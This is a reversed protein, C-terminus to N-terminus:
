VVTGYNYYWFEVCKTGNMFPSEYGAIAGSKYTPTDLTLFKGLATNLTHDAYPAFSSSETYGSRVIWNVLKNSTPDNKWKCTSEFDCDLELISQPTTTTPPPKTTLPQPPQASQPTFDCNTNTFQV